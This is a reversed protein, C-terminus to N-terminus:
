APNKIRDVQVGQERLWGLARAIAEEGGDVELMVWRHGEEINARSVSTTLGFDRDVSRILSSAGPDDPLTLHLRAKTV